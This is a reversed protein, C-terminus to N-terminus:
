RELTPSGDTVIIDEPLGLEALVCRLVGLLSRLLELRETVSRCYVITKDDVVQVELAQIMSRYARACRLSLAARVAQSLQGSGPGPAYWTASATEPYSIPMDLGTLDSGLRFLDGDTNSLSYAPIMSVAAASLTYLKQSLWGADRQKRLTDVVWGPISVIEPTMLADAIAVAVRQAPADALENITAPHVGIAQLLRLTLSESSQMRQNTRKATPM